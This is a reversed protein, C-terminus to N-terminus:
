VNKFTTITIELKVVKTNNDSNRSRWMKVPSEPDKPYLDMQLQVPPYLDMQLKVPPYPDMQLKVPPYPDMQLQM